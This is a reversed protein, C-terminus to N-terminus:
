ARPAPSRGYQKLAWEVRLALYPTDPFLAICPLSFGCINRNEATDVFRPANASLAIVLRLPASTVPMTVIGVNRIEMLGSINPPPDAYIDHETTRLAVGDDGILVAGRDILSLGLGSKGSGPEGEILVGCNGIAVATAQHLQVSM